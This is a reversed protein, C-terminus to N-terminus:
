IAVARRRRQGRAAHVEELPGTRGLVAPEKRTDHPVSLGEPVDVVNKGDADQM